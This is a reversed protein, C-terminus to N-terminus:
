DNQDSRRNYERKDLVRFDVGPYRERHKQLAETTNDTKEQNLSQVHRRAHQCLYLYWGLLVKENTM